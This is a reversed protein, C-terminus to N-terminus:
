NSANLWELCIVVLFIHGSKPLDTLLLACGKTKATCSPLTACHARNTKLEPSRMWNVACLFPQPEGATQPSRLDTLGQVREPDHRMGSGSYLKSCWKIEKLFFVAKHAAAYFSRDMLRSLVEMLRTLREDETRGWILVDDVWVFFVREISGSLGELRVGQFYTTADPIGQSVRMPTFSGRFTVMTFLAQAKPSLSM